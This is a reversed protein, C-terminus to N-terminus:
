QGRSDLPYRCAARRTLWHSSVAYDLYRVHLRYDYRELGPINKIDGFKANNWTAKALFPVWSVSAGLTLMM